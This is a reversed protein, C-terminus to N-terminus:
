VGPASHYWLRGVEAAWDARDQGVGGSKEAHGCGVNGMGALGQLHGLGAREVGGRGTKAWGLGACQRDVRGWGEGGRRVWGAGGWGKEGVRRVPGAPPGRQGAPGHLAHRPGAAPGRSPGDLAPGAGGAVLVAGVQAVSLANSTVRRSVPGARRLADRWTPPPREIIIRRSVLRTRHSADRCLSHGIRRHPTGCSKM